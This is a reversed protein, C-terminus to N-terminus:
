PVSKYARIVAAIALITLPLLIFLRVHFSDKDKQKLEKEIFLEEAAPQEWVFFAGFIAYFSVTAVM